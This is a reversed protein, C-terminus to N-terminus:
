SGQLTWLADDGVPERRVRKEALAQVLAADAAARNVPENGTTVIAAVEQTTLGDPFPELAEAADQAAPRRALTPDLNAVVVDYAEVPQFGGAELQAEGRRFVLSPATYRVPGDSTSAKGQLETPSGGASRALRRDEEYAAVVDPDDLANVAGAADVGEVRALVRELSAPEDLLAPTTFWAFQLARFAALEREPWRMRVAIIARCGVATAIVRARPQPAIPMGYRRFLGLGLAAGLPTYGREEYQEPRETLGIMVNRWRLQEGYRWRLVALAPSASYAWPCGADSFHLVDIM